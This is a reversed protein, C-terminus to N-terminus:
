YLSLHMNFQTLGFRRESAPHLAAINLHHMAERLVLEYAIATKQLDMNAMAMPRNLNQMILDFDAELQERSLPAHRIGLREFLANLM